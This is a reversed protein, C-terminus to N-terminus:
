PRVEKALPRERMTAMVALTCVLRYNLADLRGMTHELPYGRRSDGFLLAHMAVTHSGLLTDIEPNTKLWHLLRPEEDELLELSEDVLRDSAAVVDKDIGQMTSTLRGYVRRPSIKRDM